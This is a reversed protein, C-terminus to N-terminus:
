AKREPVVREVRIKDFRRVVRQEARLVRHFCLKQAVRLLRAAPCLDRHLDQMTAQGTLGDVVAVAGKQIERGARMHRRLREEVARGVRRPLPQVQEVECGLAGIDQEILAALRRIVLRVSARHTIEM